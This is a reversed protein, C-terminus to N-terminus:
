ENNQTDESRHAALSERIDEVTTEYATARDFLAEWTPDTTM